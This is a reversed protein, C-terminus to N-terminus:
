DFMDRWHFLVRDWSLPSPPLMLMLRLAVTRSGLLNDDTVPFSFLLIFLYWQCHSLACLLLLITCHEIASTNLLISLFSATATATAAAVAGYVNCVLNKDIIKKSEIAVYTTTCSLLFLGLASATPEPSANHMTCTWRARWCWCKRKNQYQWVYLVASMDWADSSSLIFHMCTSDM